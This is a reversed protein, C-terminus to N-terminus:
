EGILFTKIDRLAMESLNPTMDELSASSLTGDKSLKSGLTPVIPENLPCQIEVVVPGEVELNTMLKVLDERNNVQIYELSYAECIKKLDPFHLGAEPGTGFLRGDYYNNQSARISLYGANNLVLLKINMSHHRMVSLEQINQQLSGDGTFALVREAGASIAGIAAPLSFGMTAMAGSTIYRQSRHSLSIAQTIAYFASGADSIVCDNKRLGANV